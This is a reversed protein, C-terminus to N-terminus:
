KLSLNDKEMQTFVCLLRSLREFRALSDDEDIWVVDSIIIESRCPINEGSSTLANKANKKKMQFVIGGLTKRSLVIASSM